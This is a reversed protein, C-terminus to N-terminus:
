TPSTVGSLNYSIAVVPETDAPFRPEFAKRMTAVLAQQDFESYLEVLRQISIGRREGVVFGRRNVTIAATLSDGPSTYVGTADLDQRMYESVVIPVGDVKALEGTIVTANPGYRDVTRVNEDGIVDIYSAISLVHVLDNVAVGYKGMAQRHLRLGDASCAAGSGDFAALGADLAHRRLGVWNRRPDDADVVDADQHSAAVDGNLVCDELDASLTDVLEQKLWPLVPLIADEELESSVLLEGAFKAAELRIKRTEPRTKKIATQGTDATQETHGGGRTRAVAFGPLDFPNTPMAIQPFLGVVMLELAVREILDYSLSTPVFEAGGQADETNLAAQLTPLFHTQYFSTKQPSVGLISSLLVLEDARSQFESVNAAPCGILAGITHAPYTQINDLRDRGSLASPELKWEATPPSDHRLARTLALVDAAAARTNGRSGRGARMDAVEHGLAAVAAAAVDYGSLTKRM